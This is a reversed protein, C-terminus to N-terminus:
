YCCRSKHCSFYGIAYDTVKLGTASFFKELIGLLRWDLRAIASLDISALLAYTAYQGCDPCPLATDRCNIQNNQRLSVANGHGYNGITGQNNQRLSVANGHGYNNIM